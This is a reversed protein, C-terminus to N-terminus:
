KTLRVELVRDPSALVWRSIDGAFGRTVITDGDVRIGAVTSRHAQLKWLLHGDAADWFWLMGEWGGAVVMSGDATITADVLVRPGASYSKRLQGTRGDWLRVAGDIGTTVIGHDDAFRASYVVGIHGALPTVLQYRELDWLVPPTAVGMYDAVTILRQGDLSPRLMRVRAPVQFHGVVAVHDPDYARLQRQADVAIVRGDALLVAADIGAPATPLAIPEHEERTILLSGDIGGSIVDHGTPAFSVTNVPAGHVITRLLRGGPLEYLEVTNGRAIAARDGERSVAPFASAFDGEVETVSPLEALLQDRATDWVRTAHDLCGIAVYRQDPTLSALFGCDDAIEQSSWRLYPPTADWVRATGDWSAAVVRQGSADFHASWVRNLPGGLQTVHMGAVGDAVAISGSTAGALLLRSTPDWDVTVIRSRLVNLEFQQAGSAADWVQEVGTVNGTAVRKGDPSFALADIAGGSDRLRRLQKGSPIEWIAAEGHRNGTALRSSAPDFSFARTGPGPILTTQTWTSTSFVRVGDGGTTALWNGDASFAVAPFGNADVLLEALLAGTIANWVRAVDGNTDIAVILKDDPSVAEYLYRSPKGAHKLERVLTGSAADWIRVTDDGAATVIRAGDATYHVDYVSDGHPLTFLRQNTRADWVQAAKDDTTVVQQGDPSFMASWMRGATAAFRAQEALQPQMARAFMFKTGPSHDGRQYANSLHLLADEIEDHLLASRGQEVEAQTVAAEALEQAMRNRLASRYQVVVLATVAALAVGLRRIWVGRRASRRSADVFLTEIASLEGTATHRVLDALVEGRWLLAPSRARDEWQQASSRLQERPQARQAARLAAALELASNWRDEPRKALARQFVRDLAPSFGAGLSPVPAHCHLEDYEELTVAEFPRRGTLTEYAVIALAYLDSAPGVTQADDWQEPSMYPPSGVTADSRTLRVRAGSGPPSTTGGTLTAIKSACPSAARPRHKTLAPTMELSASQSPQDAALESPTAHEAPAGQEAPTDQGAPTDPAAPVTTTEALVIGDLLKAIGFDLLKPLLQGAREIVMVNSPKLDRHVIGREHAAEVVEAVREFFPVLQELPLPGRTQLWRNLTVGQVLEMAIWLLGDNEEIGFAYVHAAYPHDLRSALQAERLFRQLARDHRRLRQHLVKVVAERGLLAQDCRYVAGFGGEDIRERLIFEGLTRGTLDDLETVGV